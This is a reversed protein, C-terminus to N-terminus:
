RSMGGSITSVDRAAGSFIQVGEGILDEDITFRLTAGVSRWPSANAASQDHYIILQEGKRAPPELIELITADHSRHKGDAFDDMLANMSYELVRGIIEIKDSHDPNSM